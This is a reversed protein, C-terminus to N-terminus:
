RRDGTPAEAGCRRALSIAWRTAADLHGAQTRVNSTVDKVDDLIAHVRAAAPALQQEELATILRMARRSLLFLGGCVAVIAALEILGAAAMIGLFM